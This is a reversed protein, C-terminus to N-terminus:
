VKSRIDYTQCVTSIAFANLTGVWAVLFGYVLGAPGGNQYGLLFTTLVGEWTNMLTCAFGVVSIFGFRRALIQKKGSRALALTDEDKVFQELGQGREARNRLGESNVLLGIESHRHDTSQKEFNTYEVHKFTEM